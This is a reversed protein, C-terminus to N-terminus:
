NAIIFNAAAADVLLNTLHAARDDQTAFSYNLGFMTGTFARTPTSTNGRFQFGAVLRMIKTGSYPATGITFPNGVGVWGGAGSNAAPSWRYFTVLRASNLVCCIAYKTNAVLFPAAGTDSASGQGMDNVGSNNWNMRLAGNPLISMLWSSAGIDARGFLTAEGSTPLSPVSVLCSATFFPSALANSHPFLCYETNAGTFVPVKTGNGQDTWVPINSTAVGPTSGLIGQYNAQDTALLLGSGDTMAAHFHSVTDNRGPFSVTSALENIFQTLNAALTSGAAVGTVTSFPGTTASGATVHMTWTPGSGPVGTATNITIKVGNAVSGDGNAYTFGPTTGRIAFLMALPDYSPRYGHVLPPSGTGDVQFQDFAYRVPDVAARSEVPPASYVNAGVEAPTVIIPVTWGTGANEASAAAFYSIAASGDQAINFEAANATLTGCMHVIKSCTANILNRGSLPSIGDAASNWLAWMSTLQGLTVITVTKGATVAAALVTRMSTVDTTFHTRNGGSPNFQGALAEAYTDTPPIIGTGVQSASIPITALSSMWPLGKAALTKLAGQIAPAGYLIQSDINAAVLNSENTAQCAAAVATAMIDDCDYGCDSDEFLWMATNPPGSSGITGFEYCNLGLGMRYLM